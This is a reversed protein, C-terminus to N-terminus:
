FTVCCHFVSYNDSILISIIEERIAINTSESVTFM